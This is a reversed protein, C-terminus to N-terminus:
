FICKTSTYVSANLTGDAFWSISVDNEFSGTFGQTPRSCWHIRRAQQLWFGDPDRQAQERMAQLQEPTMLAPYDPYNRAPILTHDTM